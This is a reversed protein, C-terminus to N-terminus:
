RRQFVGRLTDELREEPRATSEPEAATSDTQAPATPRLIERVLQAPAPHEEGQQVREQVRQMASLPDPLPGNILGRPDLLYVPKGLPGFLRVPLHTRKGFSLLLSYDIKHHPLHIEGLGTATCMPATFILDDNSILGNAATFSATLSEFVQGSKGSWDTPIGPVDQPILQIGSLVGSGLVLSATGSLTHKIADMEDGLASIEVQMGARSSIYEKGLALRQVLGIDVNSCAAALTTRTNAQRMDARGRADLEGGAVNTFLRQLTVLGNDMTVSLDFSSLPVRALVLTGAHLAIAGETVRLTRKIHTYPTEGPPPVAALLVDTRSGPQVSAPAAAPPHPLPAKGPVATEDPVPLEDPVPIEDAVATESAVEHLAPNAHASEDATAAAPPLYRDLDLTDLTVDGNVALTDGLVASLRGTLTTDDLKADLDTLSVHTPSIGLTFAARLRNLATSDATPVPQGLAKLLEALAANVTFDGELSADPLLAHGQGVVSGHQTAINLEDFSLRLSDLALDANGRVTLPGLTPPLLGRLPVIDLALGQMTYRTKTLEAKAFTCALRAAADPQSADVTATVNMKPSGDPTFDTASTKIDTLILALKRETDDYAVAGASLNLLGFRIDTNAGKAFSQLQSEFSELQGGRGSHEAYTVHWVRTELLDLRIDDLGSFALTRLASTLNEVHLSPLAEGGDFALLVARLDASAMELQPILVGNVRVPEIYAGACATAISEAQLNLNHATDAFSMDAFSFEMKGLKVGGSIHADITSLILELANLRLETEDAAYLLTDFGTSFRRATLTFNEDAAIGQANVLLGDLSASQGSYTDTYRLQKGSVSFGELSLGLAQANAQLALNRLSLNLGNLTAHQQTSLDTYTVAADNISLSNLGLGALVVLSGAAAQPASQVSLPATVTANVQRSEMGPLSVIAPNEAPAPSQAKPTVASAAPSFNWNAHGDATRLLNCALGNIVIEDFEYRQSLLPLLAIYAKGGEIRLFGSEGNGSNHQFDPPNSLRVTGFEVGLWPFFTLNLDGEISLTRGTYQRVATVIRDKYDNLDFFATLYVVAAVVILLLVGLLVALIKLLKKM